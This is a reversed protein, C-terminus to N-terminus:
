SHGRQICSPGVFSPVHRCVLSDRSLTGRYVCLREREREREQEMQRDRGMKRDTQRDMEREREQEMQRDRGMNRDTQRDM